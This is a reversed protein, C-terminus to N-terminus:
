NQGKNVKKQYVVALVLVGLIIAVLMQATPYEPTVPLTSTTPSATPTPTTTPTPTPTATPNAEQYLTHLVDSLTNVALNLSEGSREMFTPSTWNYNANVWTCNYDGDADFTTDYAISVTANYASTTTLDGDFSLYANFMVSDYQKTRATVYDEYNQHNSEEGWPTSDDMVHGFVAVDVVYHSMVGATKSANVYDKNKLFALAKQYEDNARQASANDYMTGDADFYIHHKTTDGIGDAPQGNDPLETGYLYSALNDTIYQKEQAPLYDLAHQAIWDHTGYDPQAPNASWGGNSWGLAPKIGLLLASACLLLLILKTLKLKM